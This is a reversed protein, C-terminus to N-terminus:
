ARGTMGDVLLRTGLPHPLAVRVCRVAAVELENAGPREWISVSVTGTRLKVSAYAPPTFRTSGYYLRVTRGDAALRYKVWHAPRLQARSTSAGCGSVLGALAIVAAVGYAASRRCRVPM